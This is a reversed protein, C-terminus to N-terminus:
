RRGLTQPNGPLTEMEVSVGCGRLREVMEAFRSVRAERLDALAENLGAHHEDIFYALLHLERDRFECTIEVGAIVEVERSAERAPAVGALTDHDTVAIAALGSRRALDVVQVPTYEGDSATTHLHLDARDALPSRALQQCLLTFPQRAPMIM